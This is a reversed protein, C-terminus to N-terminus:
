VAIRINLCYKFIVANLCSYKPVVLSLLSTVLNMKPSSDPM